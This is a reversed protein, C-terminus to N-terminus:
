LKDVVMLALLLPLYVVSGLFLHRASRGSRAVALRIGLALFGLGLTLAGVLYLAGTLGLVTTLLSVAVLALISLLVQRATRRGEPDVVALMPFGAREYDDRYLWAIAFFHPLQWLFLIGFLVWASPDLTGRAATWGMLAPIAGPVAGVLTCLWTESKLPTYVFIYLALAALGLAATLLNVSIALLLAGAICIGSAFALAALPSLRGSPLPRRRTREMLADADREVYQNLANTGGALLGTGILAALLTLGDISGQSGVYFGVATTAAVLGTIGPKTLEWPDAAFTIPRALSRAASTGAVSGRM